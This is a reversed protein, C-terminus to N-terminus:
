LHHHRHPSDLGLDYCDTAGPATGFVLPISNACNDSVLFNVGFDLASLTTANTTVGTSYNSGDYSFAKYYYTTLQNLGTHNVPSTTGNYLLTGGAFPQGIVPPAGTPTTFTGTFEM